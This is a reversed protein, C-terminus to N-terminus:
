CSPFKTIHRKILEILFSPKVPKELLYTLCCSKAKALRPDNGYGTMLIIRADKSKEKIQFFADYGDMVPMKVDMITLDPNNKVFQEIALKGNQATIVNYGSNTIFRSTSDLLDVDDDVLLVKKKISEVM